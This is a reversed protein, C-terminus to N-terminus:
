MVKRHREKYMSFAMTIMHIFMIIALGLFLWSYMYLNEINQVGTIITDTGTIAQYPIEIQYIGIALGMWIVFTVSSLMLSEWLFSIITLLIGVIVLLVVISELM